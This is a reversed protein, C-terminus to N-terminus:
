RFYMKIFQPCPNLFATCDKLTPVGFQLTILMRESFILTRCGPGDHVSFGQIDFLYGETLKESVMGFGACKSANM